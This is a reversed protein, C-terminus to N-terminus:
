QATETQPKTTPLYKLMRAVTADEEEVLKVDESSMEPKRNMSGSGQVSVEGFGGWSKLEEDVAAAWKGEDLKGDEVFSSYSLQKRVKSHLREPIDSESLKKELIVDASAKLGKETLLAFDKEIKALRDSNKKSEESLNTNSAKLSEFEKDKESAVKKVAEDVVSKIDESFKEKVDSFILEPEPMNEEEKGTFGVSTFTLKVKGVNEDSLALSRTSSDSDFTCVSGEKIFSQRIIKAPGKLTYGNSEVSKGEPVDEV